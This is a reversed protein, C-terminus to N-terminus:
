SCRKRPARTTTGNTSRRSTSRRSSGNSSRTRAGRPNMHEMLRKITGGKGAADRGEFLIVVRQGSEKVWAQLKLLEVQLRYKQKEYNRRTMLNKYPYTSADRWAPALEEDPNVRAAHKDLPSQLARRLLAADDPAAGKLVADIAQALHTAPTRRVIDHLAVLKAEQASATAESAVFDAIRAEVSTPAIDGQVARRPSEAARRRAGPRSKRQEPPTGDQSHPAPTRPARPTKEM